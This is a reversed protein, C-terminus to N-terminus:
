NKNADLNKPNGTQPRKQHRPRQDTPDDPRQFTGGQHAAQAREAGAQVTKANGLVAYQLVLRRELRALKDQNGVAGDIVYGVGFFYEVTGPRLCHLVM